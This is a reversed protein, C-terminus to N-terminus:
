VRRLIELNFYFTVSKLPQFIGLPLYKITTVWPPPPIPTRHWFRHKPIFKQEFRRFNETLLTHPTPTPNNTFHIRNRVGLPLLFWWKIRYCWPRVYRSHSPASALPGYTAANLGLCPKKHSFLPGYQLGLRSKPGKKITKRGDNRNHEALFM